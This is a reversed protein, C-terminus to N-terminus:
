KRSQSHKVGSQPIGTEIGEQMLDNGVGLFSYSAHPILTEIGEQMLDNGVKKPISTFPIPSDILRL